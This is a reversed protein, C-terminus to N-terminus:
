QGGDAPRKGASPRKPGVLEYSHRIMDCLEEDPVDGGLEVTNWHTKNMHWGPQVSRYVRRYLDARAPECKLNVCPKGHVEILLAFWKRSSRRRVVVTTEEEFPCDMVADALSLAWDLVEQSNM